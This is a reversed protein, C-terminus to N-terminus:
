AFKEELINLLYPLISDLVNLGHSSAKVGENTVHLLKGEQLWKTKENFIELLTIQPMFVNWREQTIGESTRLGSAVYESVVDLSTQSTIKRVGAGKLKVERLWNVPDAANVRAERIICNNSCQEPLGNKSAEYIRSNHLKTEHMLCNNEKIYKPIIRSHAGPGIGIYQLGQWYSKNHVSEASCGHAFNSIEYRRFGAKNLLSVAIEYLDAMQDADPVIIEGSQVQHFLKTGRELTLQYLSIHNDCVTLMNELEREWSETTQNPRGFILDVSLRGPFLQKAISICHLAEQVSHDRNLLRLSAADLAQVGISVRNVGVAKFDKLKNTELSTPNGELTIEVNEELSCMEQITKLVKEVMQPRALSPTGGGFFVSHVSSIHSHRLNHQLEKVIFNELTNNEVTWHSNPHPIFKVFNCYSCRQRCYPWHVYVSGTNLYSDPLTAHLPGHDLKTLDDSNLLSIHRTSSSAGKIYHWKWANHLLKMWLFDKSCSPM